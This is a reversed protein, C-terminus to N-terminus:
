SEMVSRVAFEDCRPMGEDGPDREAWLRMLCRACEWEVVDSSEPNAVKRGTRRWGHPTM